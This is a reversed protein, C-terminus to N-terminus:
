SDLKMLVQCMIEVTLDGDFMRKNMAFIDAIPKTISLTTVVSAIAGVILSIIGLVITILRAEDGYKSADDHRIISCIKQYKLLELFSEETKHTLPISKNVLQIVAQDRQGQQSLELAKNNAVAVPAVVKKINAILTKGMDTDSLEEIKAIADRYQQLWKQIDNLAQSRLSKDDILVYTQVSSVFKNLAILAEYAKETRVQNNTVIQELNYGIQSIFYYSSIVILGVLLLVSAFAIGLWVGIKVNSGNM